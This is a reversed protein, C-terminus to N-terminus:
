RLETVLKRHDPSTLVSNLGAAFSEIKRNEAYTKLLGVVAMKREYDNGLVMNM